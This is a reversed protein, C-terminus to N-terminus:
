TLQFEPTSMMLQLLGRITQDSTDGHQDELFKHFVETEKESLKAQFLRFGLAEILARPDARLEPPAIQALDPAAAPGDERMAMRPEGNRMMQGRAMEGRVMMGAVNYRQLLTSANIWTKGGDWGKVNPPLFPMQGLSRLTNVTFQGQPLDIELERATQVYWQIPGKIQSRMATASYFEASRLIAAMLPRIEYHQARFTDALQDVLGPAPDDYAFFRWLKKAIYAACAPKELIMDIVDDASFNGTRGFFKKDGDDRELAATQFSMTRPNIKYSTFTRAAQQIDEETYNGIGLTFLEMLERAFNENPHSKHNQQTDLYWIMAPDRAIAKTMTGFNGLANQRLTENQQWLGVPERVKQVSTTFHGHWFLTMKERLPNPTRRMRDLWWHMVGFLQREKTMQEKRFQEIQKQREEETLGQLRRMGSYDQPLSMEPKPFADADDPAHVLQDVASEFGAAHLTKIEAPSGGFGARNLLHAAKALDWEHAPLPTLMKCHSRRIQGFTGGSYEGTKKM